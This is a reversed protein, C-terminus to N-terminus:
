HIQSKLPHYWNAQEYSVSLGYKWKAYQDISQWHYPLTVVERKPSTVLFQMNDRFRTERLRGFRLFVLWMSLNTVLRSNSVKHKVKGVNMLSRTDTVPNYATAQRRLGCHVFHNHILKDSQCAAALTSALLESKVDNGLVPAGNVVPLASYVFNPPAKM